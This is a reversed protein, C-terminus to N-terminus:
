SLTSMDIVYRYRAEGNEIRTFVENIDKINIVEVEPAIGNSACFDLVDQTEAISGILSGAVSQRRFALKSNDVGDIIDINGVVVLSADRKLLDLFPGVEHKDPVTSLILDFSGALPALSSKDTAIFAAHAGLSRAEEIKEPTTTLVTVEVGMAAALKLAMHGLGGFGVIAVRDGKGIGWHNLPSWTTVGACLIPAAAEPALGDPISLVYDEAVVVINSYGGFTNDRGYMNKGGAAAAAPVMPGNYTALWGNPGECYNEEGAECPECVRCSEIMCGVGVLDGEKFRTVKAGIRSVRGVIEHGPVCPYVTNHWENKVQHIDSHCVGTFLVAIVVDGPRPEDREFEMRELKSTAARAGYGVSPIM